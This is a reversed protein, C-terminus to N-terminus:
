FGLKEKILTHGDSLYENEYESVVSFKAKDFDEEMNKYLDDRYKKCLKAKTTM